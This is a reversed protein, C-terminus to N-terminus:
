RCLLLETSISLIAVTPLQMELVTLEPMEPLTKMVALFGEVTFKNDNSNGLRLERLQRMELLQRVEQDTVECKEVNSVM